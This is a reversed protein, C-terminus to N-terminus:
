KNYFEYITELCWYLKFVEKNVKYKGDQFNFTEIKDLLNFTLDTLKKCFINCFEEDTKLNSIACIVNRCINANIDIVADLYTQYHNKNKFFKLFQEQGM